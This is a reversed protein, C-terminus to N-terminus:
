PLAVFVPESAIELTRRVPPADAGVFCELEYRGPALRIRRPQPGWLPADVLREGESDHLTFRVDRWREDSARVLLPTGRRLPLVLGEVSGRRLDVVRVAVGFESEPDDVILRYVGSSLGAVTFAGSSDATVFTRLQPTRAAGTQADISEYRVKAASSDGAEARLLGSIKREPELAIEGLDRVEGAELRVSTEWLGMGRARVRLLTVGPPLEDLDFEGQSVANGLRSSGGTTTQVTASGVPAKTLADVVRGRVSATALLPSEADLVFEVEEAGAEIRQAAVVRQFHVLSIWLPPAHRSELRGLYEAPLQLGFLDNRWFHSAASEHNVSGRPAELWAGPAELTAAALLDFPVHPALPSGDRGVLKVLLQSPLELALDLRQSEVDGRLEVTTFASGNMSATATVWHQGPELNPVSYAGDKACTTTAREGMANCVSLHPPSDFRPRSPDSRVVGYLTVRPLLASARTEIPADVADEVPSEIPTAPTSPVDLASDASPSAPATTPEPEAVLEPPAKNGHAAASSSANTPAGDDGAFAFWALLGLVASLAAALAVPKKSRLTNM